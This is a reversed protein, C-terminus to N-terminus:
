VKLVHGTIPDPSTGINSKIWNHASNEGLMIKGSVCLPDKQNSLCIKVKM